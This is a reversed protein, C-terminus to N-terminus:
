HRTVFTFPFHYLRHALILSRKVHLGHFFLFPSSFMFHDRRSIKAAYGHRFCMILPRKLALKRSGHLVILQRCIHAERILTRAPPERITTQSDRRFNPRHFRVPRSLTTPYFPIRNRQPQLVGIPNHSLPVSTVFGCM